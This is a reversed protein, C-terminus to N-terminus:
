PESPEGGDEPPVTSELIEASESAEPILDLDEPETMAVDWQQITELASIEEANKDRALAADQAEVSTFPKYYFAVLVKTIGDSYTIGKIDALPFRKMLENSFNAAQDIGGFVGIDFVLESYTEQGADNGGSDSFVYNAVRVNAKEASAAIAGLILEFNKDPPLARTTLELEAELAEKDTAELVRKAEKIQDLKSVEVDREGKGSAVSFLKPLIFIMFLVIAIFLIALPILLDRNEELKTQFKDKSVSNKM